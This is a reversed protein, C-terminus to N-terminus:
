PSATSGGTMAEIRREPPVAGSIMAERDRRVEDKELIPLGRLDDGSRISTPDIGSERFREGWFPSTSAAHVAIARLRGAQLAAVRDAPSALTDEFRRIRGLLGYGRRRDLRPFVLHRYITDYM